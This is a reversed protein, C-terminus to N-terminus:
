KQAAKLREARRIVADFADVAERQMHPLVHQYTDMTFSTSAHGLRESVVKVPVNGALLVTAHTHRASYPRIYPVKAEACLKRWAGRLIGQTLTRGTADAFIFGNREYSPGARLIGEAQRSRYGTLLLMMTESLPVTRRGRKTKVEGIYYINGVGRKLARSIVVGDATLDAWKLALCEGIRMGATLMLFFLPCLDHLKAKELLLYVQEATHTQSEAKVVKPVIALDAPNRALLGWAVAQEFGAHLVRHVHTVSQPSVKQVLESYLTSLLMPTIKDLRRVGLGPVIYHTIRDNYSRRTSDEIDTRAKLWEPFFEGVTKRTAPVLDQVDSKALMATLEKQITAATGRVTKSAYRRTGQASRGIYVRLLYKDDGRHIVQGRNRDQM